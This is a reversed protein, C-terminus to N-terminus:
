ARSDGVDASGRMAGSTGPPAPPRPVVVTRVYRALADQWTPMEIGTRRLKDNSLACFQPRRARLTVDAVKVPALKAEVGLLRAAEHGFELWTCVNSNVCHYL